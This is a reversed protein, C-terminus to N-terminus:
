PSMPQLSTSRVTPWIVILALLSLSPPSSVPRLSPYFLSPLILSPPLSDSLARSIPHLSLCHCQSHCYCYFSLSVPLSSLSLSLLPSDSHSHTPAPYFCCLLSSCSFPILLPILWFLWTECLSTTCLDLSHARGGESHAAAALCIGREQLWLGSHRRSSM